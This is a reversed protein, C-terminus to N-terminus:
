WEIAQFKGLPLNATGPTSLAAEQTAGLSDRLQRHRDNVPGRAVPLHEAKPSITHNPQSNGRSSPYKISFIGNQGDLHTTGNSFNWNARSSQVRHIVGRLDGKWPWPHPPAMWANSILTAPAWIARILRRM